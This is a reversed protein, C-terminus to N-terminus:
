RSMRIVQILVVIIKGVKNAKSVQSGFYAIFTSLRIRNKGFIDKIFRVTRLFSVQSTKIFSQLCNIKGQIM